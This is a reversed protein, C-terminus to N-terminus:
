EDGSNRVDSFLLTDFDSDDSNFFNFTPTGCDGLSDSSLADAWYIIKEEDRLSYVTLNPFDTSLFLEANLCDDSITV